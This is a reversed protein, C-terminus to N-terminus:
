NKLSEVSHQHFNEQMSVKHKLKQIELDTKSLLTLYSSTHIAMWRPNTGLENVKGRKTCFYIFDAFETSLLKLMECYDGVSCYFKISNLISEIEQQVSSYKRNVTKELSITTSFNMTKLPFQARIMSCARRILSDRSIPNTLFKISNLPMFKSSSKLRTM